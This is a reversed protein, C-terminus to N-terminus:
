SLQKNNLDQNALGNTRQDVRGLTHSSPIRLQQVLPSRTRILIKTHAGVRGCVGRSEQEQRRGDNPSSDGLLV